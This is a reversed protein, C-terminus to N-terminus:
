KTVQYAIREEGNELYIIGCKIFGSKELAKQMVTNDEHTDIKINDSLELCFDVILKLIGRKRGRSAVRHIVSYHLENIWGGKIYEYTPDPGKSFFFVGEIAGDEELVYLRQSKIDETLLEKSPYGGSWQTPNGNKVMFTRATEYVALIENLNESAAKKINM